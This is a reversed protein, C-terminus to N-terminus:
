SLLGREKRFADWAANVRAMSKTDGGRDPHNRQALERYRREVDGIIANPSIGFVEHWSAVPEGGPLAEYQFGHFAADATEQGGWREIGRIAEITKAVANLNDEVGKWHDCAVCIKKGNRATYYVAVGPDEPQRQGALPLGDRRLSINTSIVIERGGALKVQRVIDDRSVAFGKKFRATKRRYSATRPRQLPWYLPYAENKITNNM